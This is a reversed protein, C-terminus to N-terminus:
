LEAWVMKGDALPEVGWRRALAAVMGLGHNTVATLPTDSDSAPAAGSDRVSIRVMGDARSIGVTLGSRAHTVANTALETTVMAADDAFAEEGWRRLTDIAFHRAARPAGHGPGFNRTATVAPGAAERRETTAPPHGIVATHLERVEALALERDPGSVLPRPYACFLSFPLEDGLDNWLAELEIAANVHGAAWLLAVMEGYVRVPRGTAAAQRILDGIVKGFGDPDPRDSILFRSLTQAADLARFTSQDRAASVDCGRASLWAEVASRHAPTAVMVVASGEALAQGLYRGVNDILETDGDYFHVVHGGPRLSLQDIGPSL